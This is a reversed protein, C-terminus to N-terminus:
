LEDKVFNQKKLLKIVEHIELFKTNFSSYENITQIKKKELELTNKM